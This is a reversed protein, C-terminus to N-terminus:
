LVVVKMVRWQNSVRLKLWYVGPQEIYLQGNHLLGSQVIRGSTDYLEYLSSAAAGEITLRGSTPNPFINIEKRLVESNSSIVFTSDCPYGLFNYQLSDNEFCRLQTVSQVPDCLGYGLQLRLGGSQQGIGAYVKTLLDGEFTGNNEIRLHQLSLTDGMVTEQTISDLYIAALGGGSSCQGTWVTGYQSYASFDYNLQYTELGTDWFYVENGEQRLYLLNGTTGEEVVYATQGGVSATDIIEYSEFSVSKSPGGSLTEVEYVWRTGIDFSLFTPTRYDCGEGEEATMLFRETQYSIDGDQYFLHDGVKRHLLDDVLTDKESEIVYFDELPHTNWINVIGANQFWRAGIPAFEAQAKASLCILCFLPLFLLWKTRTFISDLFTRLLTDNKMM